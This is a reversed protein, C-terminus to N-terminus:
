SGARAPAPRSAEQTAPAPPPAPPTPAAAVPAPAPAATTPPATEAPAPAPPALTVTRTVFRQVQQERVPTLVPWDGHLLALHAGLVLVALPGLRRMSAPPERKM